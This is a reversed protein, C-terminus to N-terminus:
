AATKVLYELKRCWQCDPLCYKVSLENVLYGCFPRSVWADVHTSLTDNRFISNHHKINSKRGYQLWTTVLWNYTTSSIPCLQKGPITFTIAFPQNAGNESFSSSWRVAIWIFVYWKQQLSSRTVLPHSPWGLKWTEGLLGASEM